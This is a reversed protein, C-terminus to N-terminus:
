SVMQPPMTSLSHFKLITNLVFKKIAIEVPLFTNVPSYYFSRQRQEKERPL